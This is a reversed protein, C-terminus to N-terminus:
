TVEVYRAIREQVAEFDHTQHADFEIGYHVESGELHRHRITGKLTLNAEDNPLQLMLQVHESAYIKSESELSVLVSVGTASIDNLTATIGLEMDAPKLAVMLSTGGVPRVRVARRRNFVQSVVHGAEEEFQFHYRCGSDDYARLIVRSTVHLPSRLSSDALTVAACAGIPNAQLPTSPEQDKSM